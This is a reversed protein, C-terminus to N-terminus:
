FGFNKVVLSVDYTRIKGSQFDMLQFRQGGEPIDTVRGIVNQIQVIKGAACFPFQPQRVLERIPIADHSVSATDMLNAIQSLIPNKRDGSSMVLVLRSEARSIAVNILREAEETNLFKSDGQVPDFIVIRRESGQARHVTSVSVRFCNAKRLFMRILTRQARFPTLVLIDREDHFARLECVLDRIFEASDYRIPGHYKQSWAGDRSISELHTNSKGIRTIHIPQRLKMWEPKHRCDEAVVLQGKYFVHSVVRCIAEAMRSQEKLQVTSGALEKMHVFTSRGLWEQAKRNESQVVPALQKPDGAFLTRKGLHALMLAHALGVQSAEDFVVLDYPSRSHLDAFTFAARTTTLAALRANQLVGSSAARIAARIAEVQQKWAAYAQVDQADPRQAELQALRAILSEDRVPILHRRGEYHGAIFHNGVRFCQKRIEAALRHRTSLEELSKDVGVLALDVAANTTSLLLVRSGPFQTLHQALIAGLTTTKGTGPPGWLFAARWGPLQFALAQHRRLWRSFSTPSPTVSSDFSNSGAIEELWALSTKALDDVRWCALLAELFRPPYIRIRGGPQPPPCTAFRLNIQETEPNVSLVDAGGKPPGAWWAAAGELTEDLGSKTNQTLDVFVKWLNGEAQRAAIVFEEFESSKDLEAAIGECVDYQSARWDM